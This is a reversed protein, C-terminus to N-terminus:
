KKGILFTDGKGDRIVRKTVAFGHGELRSRIGAVSHGNTELRNGHVECYVLRCSPQDLTASLGNLVAGETGEVDIKIATPTPLQNDAIFEDGHRKSITITEHETATTVLSHGASGIKELTISLEAEGDEDVMAHEFLSIDARNHQMNQRLREANDPHPEFAIVPNDTVESALCAYLGINAGIDYFVDDPRLEELLDALVPREDIKWLDTFENYTPILFETSVDDVTVVYTDGALRYSVERYQNYCRNLLPKVGTRSAFQVVADSSIM